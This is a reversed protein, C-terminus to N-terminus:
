LDAQLWSSRETQSCERTVWGPILQYADGPSASAIDYYRLVTSGCAPCPHRTLRDRRVTGTECKQSARQVRPHRSRRASCLRSSLLSFPFFLSDWLCICDSRCVIAHYQVTGTMGTSPVALGSEPIVICCILLCMRHLKWKVYVASRV